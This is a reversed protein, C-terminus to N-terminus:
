LRRQSRECVDGTSRALAEATCTRSDQPPVVTVWPGAPVIRSALRSQIVNLLGFSLAYRVPLMRLVETCQEAKPPKEPDAASRIATGGPVASSRSELSPPM